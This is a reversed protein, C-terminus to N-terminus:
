HRVEVKNHNVEVSTRQQHYRFCGSFGQFIERVFELAVEFISCVQEWVWKIADLALNLGAALWDKVVSVVSYAAGM